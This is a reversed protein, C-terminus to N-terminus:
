KLVPNDWVKTEDVPFPVHIQFQIGLWKNMAEYILTVESKELQTSSSKSLYAKSIENWVVAKINAQTPRIEVKTIKQVVDQLTHGERDLANAVERCYVEIAKRQQDTRPVVKDM